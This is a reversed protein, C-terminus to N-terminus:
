PFRKPRYRKERFDEGLRFCTIKKVNGCKRLGHYYFLKLEETIIFPVIGNALCQAHRMLRQRM